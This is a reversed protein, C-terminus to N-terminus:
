SSAVQIFEYDLEFRDILMANQVADLEGAEWRKVILGTLTYSKQTKIQNAPNWIEIRLSESLKEGALYFPFFEGSYAGREMRVTGCSKVPGQFVHVRDNLGGEQYTTTPREKALGSIKSFGFEKEGIRVRFNYAKLLDGM